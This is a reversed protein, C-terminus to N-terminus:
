QMRFLYRCHDVSIMKRWDGEPRIEEYWKEWSDDDLDDNAVSLKKLHEHLGLEVKKCADQKKITWQM